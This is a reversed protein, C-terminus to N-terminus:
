RRALSRALIQLEALFEDATATGQRHLYDTYLSIQRREEPHPEASVLVIVPTGRLRQDKRMIELARFGEARAMMLSLVVVDPVESRTIHYAETSTTALRVQLQPDAKLGEELGAAESEQDEIALLRLPRDGPVLRHVAQLLEPGDAPRLRHDSAHMRYAHGKETNISGMLIPAHHLSQIARLAPVANWGSHAPLMPDIVILDPPMGAAFEALGDAHQLGHFRLGLGEFLERYRTLVAPDDDVALVFPAVGAAEAELVGEPPHLPLTFFFASGKGPQSEVWITGGHLEVLHRCISLGLGTGGTKRTPSADVQSFPEFLRAQDEPPIGPGTDAVALLIEPPDVDDLLTVSVEIQGQDTFKAANSVLNLLIQRVRITDAQILPLNEPVHTILEIPKDKVLGAATSMVGRVIETLDADGFTLEMKGAEIKSVDLIDNILGLLHLGAHHIATLDQTQTENVPGDIGKLIVRSFGIISNLPTRLEHSMNALFQTKLRDAERMEVLAQETLQASRADQLAVALQESIGLAMTIDDENWARGQENEDFALVGLVEDKVKIPVLLRSGEIRPETVMRGSEASIPQIGASTDLYATTPGWAPLLEPTATTHIQDAPLAAAVALQSALPGTQRRLSGTQRRLSGTQPRAVPRTPRDLVRPEERLRESERVEVNRAAEVEPTIEPAAEPQALAISSPEEVPEPSPPPVVESV